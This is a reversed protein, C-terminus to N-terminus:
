GRKVLPRGQAAKKKGQGQAARGKTESPICM